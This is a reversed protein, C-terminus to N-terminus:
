INLCLQMLILSYAKFNLSQEFGKGMAAEQTMKSFYSELAKEGVVFHPGLMLCGEQTTQNNVLIWLASLALQM